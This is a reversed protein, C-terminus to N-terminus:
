GSDGLVVIEEACRIIGCRSEGFGHSLHELSYQFLVLVLVHAAHPVVTRIWGGRRTSSVLTMEAVNANGFRDECWPWCWFGDFCSWSSVDAGWRSFVLRDLGLDWCPLDGLNTSIWTTSIVDEGSFGLCLGCERRWWELFCLELPVFGFSSFGFLLCDKRWDGFASGLGRCIEVGGKGRARGAGGM